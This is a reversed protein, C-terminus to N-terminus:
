AGRFGLDRTPRTEDVAVNFQDFFEIAVVQALAAGSAPKVARLMFDPAYSPTSGCRGSESLLRLASTVKWYYM